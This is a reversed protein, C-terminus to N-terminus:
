DSGKTGKAFREEWLASSRRAIEILERLLLVEKRELGLEDYLCDKQTRRRLERTLDTVTLKFVEYAKLTTAGQAKIARIDVARGLVTASLAAYTAYQGHSVDLILKARDPIEATRQAASTNNALNALIGILDDLSPAAWFRLESPVTHRSHLTSIELGTGRALRKALFPARAYIHSSEVAAFLTSIADSENRVELM